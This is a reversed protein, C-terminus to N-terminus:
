RFYGQKVLEAYMRKVAEGGKKVIKAEDDVIFHNDFVQFYGDTMVNRVQSGSTYLLNWLPRPSIAGSGAPWSLMASFIMASSSVPFSPVFNM